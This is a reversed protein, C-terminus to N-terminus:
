RRRARRRAAIVDGAVAVAPVLVAGLLATAGLDWGRVLAAGAGVLVGFPALRLLRVATPRGADRGLLTAGTAGLLVLVLGLATPWGGSTGM